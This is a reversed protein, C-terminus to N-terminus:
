PHQFKNIKDMNLGNTSFSSAVNIYSDEDKMEHVYLCGDIVIHASLTLDHINPDFDAATDHPLAVLKYSVIDEKLYHSVRREDQIVIEKIHFEHIRNIIRLLRWNIAVFAINIHPQIAQWRYDYDWVRGIITPEKNYLNPELYQPWLTALNIYADGDIKCVLSYEGPFHDEIYKLNLFFKETSAYWRDELVGPIPIIDNYKAMEADIRTKYHEPIEGVFFIWDIPYENMFPKIQLSRILDRRRVDDFALMIFVLVRGKKKLFEEDKRNLEEHVIAAIRSADKVDAKFTSALEAAWGRRDNKSSTLEEKLKNISEQLNKSSRQQWVIIILLLFIIASFINLRFSKNIKPLPSSDQMRMISVEEEDEMSNQGIKM